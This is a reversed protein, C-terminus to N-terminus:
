KVYGVKCTYDNAGVSIIDAASIICTLLGLETRSGATGHNSL